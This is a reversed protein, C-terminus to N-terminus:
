EEGSEKVECCLSIEHSGPKNVGWDDELEIEVEDGDFEM